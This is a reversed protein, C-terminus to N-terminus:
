HQLDLDQTRFIPTASIISSNGSLGSRFQCFGVFGWDAAEAKDRSNRRGNCLDSVGRADAPITLM